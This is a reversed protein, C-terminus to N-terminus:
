TTIIRADTLNALDQLVYNSFSYRSKRAKQKTIYLIFIRYRFHKSRSTHSKLNKPKQFMQIDMFYYAPPPVCNQIHLESLRLPTNM